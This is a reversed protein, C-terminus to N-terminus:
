RRENYSDELLVTLRAKTMSFMGTAEDDTLGFYAKVFDHAAKKVDNIFRINEETKEVDRMYKEDCYENLNVLSSAISSIQDQYYKNDEKEFLSITENYISHYCRVCMFVTDYERMSQSYELKNYRNYYYLGNYDDASMYSEIRDIHEQKNASIKRDQFYDRIEYSYSIALFCIATLAALVCIVTIMATKTNFRKSNGIVEAKTKDFERKFKQMEMQHKVAHTNMKGCNPCYKQEIEM